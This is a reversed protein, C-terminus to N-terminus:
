EPRRSCCRAAIPSRWHRCSGHGAARLTTARCCAVRRACMRPSRAPSTARTSITQAPRQSGRWPIPSAAWRCTRGTASPRASRRCATRCGSGGAKTMSACNRRRVRLRSRPLGTSRRAKAPWRWLRRSWSAGRCAGSASSRRRTAACLVRSRSPWHVTSTGTRRSRRGPLCSPRPPGPSSTPRRISAARRWRASTSLRPM